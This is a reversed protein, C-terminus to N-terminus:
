FRIRDVAEVSVQDRSRDYLRTTRPDAHAAMQQAEDISGGDACFLTIGTARFSHPSIKTAIEAAKARRRIMHLADNRTMRNATLQRRRDATRFLPRAAEGKIDFGAAELYADMYAAANRSAPMQHQRGGKEKLRFWALRQETYYDAVNMGLAASIRAFSYILVGCLARDRLGVITQVPFSDFLQRCEEASLIPTSGREVRVRPGRVAAAPNTEIIQGTVMWDFFRRIAALRLKKTSDSGPQSDLFAAVHRTQIQPLASVGELQCWALFGGVARTYAERTNLNRIQAFFFDAARDRAKHSTAVVPLTLSSPVPLSTPEPFLEPLM